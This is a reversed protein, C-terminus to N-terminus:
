GSPKAKVDKKRPASPVPHLKEPTKHGSPPYSGPNERKKDQEYRASGPFKAMAQGQAEQSRM